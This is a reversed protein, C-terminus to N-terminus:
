PSWGQPSSPAKLDDTATQSSNMKLQSYHHGCLPWEGNGNVWEAKRDCGRVSCRYGGRELGGRWRYTNLSTIIVPPVDASLPPDNQDPHDPNNAVIVGYTCDTSIREEERVILDSVGQGGQGSSLSISTSKWRIGLYSQKRDGGGRPRTGPIGLRNLDMSFVNKARAAIGNEHCYRVYTAYVDEKPVTSTPDREFVAWLFKATSDAAEIWRRKVEDTDMRNLAAPDKMVAVVLKLVLNLFASYNEETFLAGKWGDDRPFRNPFVVYAWRSWWADDDVEEIKPPVNCTFVHVASLTVHVAAEHKREIRHKLGGTLNKVQGVSRVAVARMEDHINAWKHELDALAFRDTALRYLDVQSYGGEGFFGYLLECYTSKGGDHAGEFLYVQKQVRGWMQLIAVAAPQLLYPVDEEEVWQRLVREIHASDADPNYPVALTYTFLYEPSHPLLEVTGTDPDVRIIGNKVPLHWPRANFPYETYSNEALLHAVVERRVTTFAGEYGIADTIEKIRAAIQGRDRVYVGNEFVYLVGNFAVTHLDRCVLAALRAFLIVIEGNRRVEYLSEFTTTAQTEQERRYTTLVRDSRAAAGLGERVAEIPQDFFGPPFRAGLRELARVVRTLEDTGSDGARAFELRNIVEDPFVPEVPPDVAPPASAQDAATGPSM